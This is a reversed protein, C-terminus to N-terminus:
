LKIKFLSETSYRGTKGIRKELAIHEKFQEIQISDAAQADSAISLSIKKEYSVCVKLLGGGPCILHLCLRFHIM